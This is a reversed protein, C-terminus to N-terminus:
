DFVVDSILYHRSTPPVYSLTPYPTLLWIWRTPAKPKIQNGEGDTVVVVCDPYRGLEQELRLCEQEIISFSTGGGIKFQRGREVPQVSTDFIFPMLDFTDKEEEFAAFIQQFFPFYSMCSGSVDMFLATLLRDRELKPTGRKGPLALDDHRFLVDTFRRDDHTFSEKDVEIEKMSTKKLKRIFHNFNLKKRISKKEIAAEIAGAMTGAVNKIPPPLSKIIENLEEVTLDEFLEEAASVRSDAQEQTEEDGEESQAHDDLTRPGSGSPAGSDGDGDEAEPPEEILKKLYYIFTENRLVNAPDKFCTDIWCLEQWFSVNRRDFSFLDCIMENITIDQAQNVKVPTAGPVDRANRVGHDLIVHLCEHCIVFLREQKTLGEWFEAGITLTPPGARDKPFTVCATKVEDSLFTDAMGFFTYFVKHYDEISAAIELQQEEPMRWKM